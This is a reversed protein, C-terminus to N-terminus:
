ASREGALVLAVARVPREPTTGVFPPDNETRRARIMCRSPRDRDPWADLLTPELGSSRCWALLAALTPIFWNSVDKGLADTEEFRVLPLRAVGDELTADTVETEIFIPGGAVARVNDLAVLPHRLHYLVGWMLVIDFQENLTAALEYVDAQVYEVDSGLLAHLRDFGFYEAPMADVAVVRKAGRREATFAAGGNSTGIDLVTLGELDHKVGASEFLRAVDNLGPTWVDDALEFRQHWVFRSSEIFSRAVEPSCHLATPRPRAPEGKQAASARIAALWLERVRVPDNAALAWRRAQSGLTDALGPEDLLLTLAVEFEQASEYWLGGGARVSQGVLVPSRANVLTPRGHSWAELAAISLSEHQSPVALAAAGAIADHKTQEDVFDTV